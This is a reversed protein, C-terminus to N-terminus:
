KNLSAEKIMQNGEAAFEQMMDFVGIQARIAIASTKIVAVAEAERASFNFIEHANETVNEDRINDTIYKSIAKIRLENM